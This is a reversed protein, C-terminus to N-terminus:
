ALGPTPPLLPPGGPLPVPGPEPPPEWAPVVGRQLADVPLPGTDVLLRWVDMMALDDPGRRALLWGVVLSPLVLATPVLLISARGPPAVLSTLPWSSPSGLAVAGWCWASLRWSRGAALLRRAPQPSRLPVRRRWRTALRVAGAAGLVASAALAALPGTGLIVASAVGGLAVTGTVLAVTPLLSRATVRDRCVWAARQDWPTPPEGPRGVLHRAAEARRLSDRPSVWCTLALAGAWVMDAPAADGGDAKLVAFVFFYVALGLLPGRFFLPSGIRDAVWGRYQWPLPANVLAYRAVHRLPPRMRRRTGLGHVTLGLGSRLDLRTAGPAALDALTGVVEDARAWRWRRPYAWLWRRVSREFAADVSM